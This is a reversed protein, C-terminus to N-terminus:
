EAGQDNGRRRSILEPETREEGGDEAAGDEGEEGDLKPSRKVTGM